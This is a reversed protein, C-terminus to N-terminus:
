ASSEKPSGQVVAGGLVYRRGVLENMNQAVHKAMSKGWENTPLEVFVHIAHAVLLAIPLPLLQVIIGPLYAGFVYFVVIIIIYHICYLPYSIDGLYVLMRPVHLNRVLTVTIAFVALAGALESKFPPVFGHFLLSSVYWIVLGAVLAASPFASESDQHHAYYILAGISMFALWFGTPTGLIAYAAIIALHRSPGNAIIMALLAVALYYRVEYLLTWSVTVVSSSNFLFLNSLINSMSPLDRGLIYFVILYAALCVMFTPFLRFARALLFPLTGLKRLSIEIVYGSLLFFVAVPFTGSPIYLFLPFPHSLGGGVIQDLTRGGYLHVHADNFPHWFSHGIAVMLAALGRLAQLANNKGM